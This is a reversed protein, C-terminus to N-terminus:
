KLGSSEKEGFVFAQYIYLETNKDKWGDWGIQAKDRACHGLFEEANWGTEEAVQPLFTGSRNGNIMYIGDTGLTFQDINYIRKLPTLVSIEIDLQPLESSTVPSFRTDRTAAAVAMEQVLEYLPKRSFFQGICGRLERNKRLTVFAGAAVTLDPSLGETGVVPLTHSILYTRLTNRAIQLLREKDTKLLHFGKTEEEESATVAAIAWYGVVKQRDGISADGSNRYLIKRYQLNQNDETMNLLTLMPMWGCISTALTSGYSRKNGALADTFEKPKNATIAEATRLDAERAVSYPPYHSFDASVIFLNDPNFYPRLIDALKLTTEQSEGGILVPIITFPKKLWYQLFPLQVEICHEQLHPAKDRSLFRNKQVLESALPDVSVKGLPTVFSGETYLSVGDIYTRHAPGLIFIHKFDRNRDLLKFGAAAVEGSFVYGAHPVVLALPRSEGSEPASDFLAKLTTELDQRGSPYFSGAVVPLRDQCGGPIGSGTLLIVLTAIMLIRTKTGM